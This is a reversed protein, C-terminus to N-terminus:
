FEHNKLWKSMTVTTGNGIKSNIQFEDMIRKAGPLGLGMGRGTSFGEQLAKEVDEIGPGTDTVTITMGKTKLQAVPEIRVEGSGAYELVNRCVESLATAILTRDNSQFGIKEGLKRGFDRITVLDRDSNIVFRQGELPTEKKKMESSHDAM